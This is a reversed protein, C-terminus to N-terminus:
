GPKDARVPTARQKVLSLAEDPGAWGLFELSKPASQVVAAFFTEIEARMKDPLDRVDQLMARSDDPPVVIFRDNRRVKGKRTTENIKLAGTVRCRLVLGPSTQTEHLVSADLPDGDEGKTSPLFGWDHPYALGFPLAHAMVFCKLESDYTLKARAGRPTEVVVNALDTEHWLPIKLFNTM